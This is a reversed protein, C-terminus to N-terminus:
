NSIIFAYVEPLYNLLWLHDWGVCVDLALGGWSEIPSLSKDCNACGRAKHLRMQTPAPGQEGDEPCGVSPFCAIWLTHAVSLCAFSPFPVCSSARSNRQVKWVGGKRERPIARLSTQGEGGSCHARQDASPVYWAQSTPGVCGVWDSVWLTAAMVWEVSQYFRLRLETGLDWCRHEYKWLKWTLFIGCVKTM